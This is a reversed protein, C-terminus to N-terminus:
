IIEQKRLESLEDWTYGAVDILVQETHQGLEPAASRPGGPTKSFSFPLGPFGVKGMVPHDFDVIFDNAIVQEDQILDLSSNVPSLILDKASFIRLWEKAPKSVFVRDLLAVLEAANKERSTDDNFRSDLEIDTIGLAECFAHWYRSPPIHCCIVWKGDACRYFNRLPNPSAVRSHRPTDQGTLLAVCINQYLLWMGTGLLSTHLEQGMGQRERVMLATVIQFAAVTSTAQDLAGYHLLTPDGDPEGMCTMMGSYGQIAFDFAGLNSLPGKAGYGSVRCYILKNNFQCLTTYDMGLKDVVAQRYSTVFVDTDKILRYVVDRGAEKSIDVAVSQKNRGSIEWVVNRDGPLDIPMGSVRYVGRVPDGVGPEEIKIVEAGMDGLIAATAPGAFFPGWELVRIGDLPQSM